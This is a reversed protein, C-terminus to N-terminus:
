AEANNRKMRPNNYNWDEWRCKDSCYKQWPRKPIMDSKCNKNKCYRKMTNKQVEKEELM